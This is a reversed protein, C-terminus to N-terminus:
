ITSHKSLMVDWKRVSRFKSLLMDATGWVDDDQNPNADSSLEFFEHWCHDSTTEGGSYKYLAEYLVPIQIQEAVFFVRADLGSVIEEREEASLTGELWVRGYNKYNSADRYVYEFKVFPPRKADCM